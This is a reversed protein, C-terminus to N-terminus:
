SSMLTHTHTISLSYFLSSYTYPQINVLLAIQTRTHTLTHTHTHILSVLLFQTKTLLHCLSHSLSLSCTCHTLSKTISSFGLLLISDSSIFFPIFRLNSVKSKLLRNKTHLPYECFKKRLNTFIETVKPRLIMLKKLSFSSKLLM